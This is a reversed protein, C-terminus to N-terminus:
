QSAPLFTGPHMIIDFHQMGKKLDFSVSHGAKRLLEAYDRSQRIFEPTDREAVTVHYRPGPAPLHLIPSLDHIEVPTLQLPDNVTTLSIPELDYVGSILIVDRVRLGARALEDASTAMVMAALQAGASHGSLTIRSPDFGLDPANAAMWLLADRCEEIMDGIRAEPALTYNLTAFSQEAEVLAPAMMASENQSLAQWYGGHIFVHLPAGAGKAPFFDLVQATGDGYSVNGIVEMQARHQASLAAYSDLYPTLDGGIMSRPSYEQELEDQSFGRYLM